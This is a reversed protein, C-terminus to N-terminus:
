EIINLRAQDGFLEIAKNNYAIAADNKNDYLGLYIKKQMYVIQSIWKGSCKHWCVGVYNSSNNIYKKGTKSLSINNRTEESRENGWNPHKEGKMRESAQKRKEEPWRRNWNSSDEGFRHIINDSIRKRQEETRKQGKNAKSIKQRSEESMKQGLMPSDGGWSINYGNETVHSHLEKIWYIEKNSLLEIECIEIIYWKFNEEGYKNWAYQLIICDEENKRLKRCHDKIRSNLDITQGIYKKDNIINEFCYIGHVANKRMYIEM